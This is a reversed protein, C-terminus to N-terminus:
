LLDFSLSVQLLDGGKMNHLYLKVFIKASSDREERLM